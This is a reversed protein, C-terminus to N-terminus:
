EWALEPEAKSSIAKIQQDLGTVKMRVVGAALATVIEDSSYWMEDGNDYSCRKAEITEGLDLSQTEPEVKLAKGKGDPGEFKLLVGKLDGERGVWSKYPKGAAMTTYLTAPFTGAPTEVDTEEEKPAAGAPATGTAMIGLKKGKEGAQGIVARTVKGTEKNVVMGIIMGASSDGYAALGATSEVRWSDGEEGVIAVYSKMMRGGAKMDTDVRFGIEAGKLMMVGPAKVMTTLDMKYAAPAAAVGDGGGAVTAPARAIAPEFAFSKEVNKRSKVGGEDDFELEELTAKLTDGELVVTWASDFSESEGVFRFTAKGALGKDTRELRFEFRDFLEEAESGEETWMWTGKVLAGTVLHGDDEVKFSAGSDRKWVGAYSTTEEGAAAPQEKPEEEPKLDTLACGWSSGLAILALLALSRLPTM